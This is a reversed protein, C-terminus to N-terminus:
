ITDYIGLFDSNLYTHIDSNAYDHNTSDWVRKEYINKRLLWTGDCSSDYSHHNNPIGQNVVLYEAPSGNEMLFVSSGVALESAKIGAISQMKLQPVIGSMMVKGM